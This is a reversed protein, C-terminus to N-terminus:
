ARAPVETRARLRVLLYIFTGIPVLYLALAGAAILVQELGSPGGGCTNRIVHGGKMLTSCSGSSASFVLLYIPLALGGPFLLTGIWKDRSTWVPSTWLLAVGIFWGLIPIVVGGIPLFILALIERAGSRAPRIGLRERAEAAIDAPDGLRELLNRVEVDSSLDSRAETIHERIEDVLETRRPRPLDRLEDGLRRLYAEVLDDPAKTM